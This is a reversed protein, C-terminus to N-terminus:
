RAKKNKVHKDVHKRPRYPKAGKVLSQFDYDPNM